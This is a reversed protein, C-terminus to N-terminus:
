IKVDLSKSGLRNYEFGKDGMWREFISTKIQHPMNLGFLYERKQSFNLDDRNLVVYIWDYRIGKRINRLIVTHDLYFFDSILSLKAKPIKEDYTKRAM